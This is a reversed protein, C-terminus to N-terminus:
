YGRETSTKRINMGNISFEYVHDIIEDLFSEAMFEPRDFPSLKLNMKHKRINRTTNFFLCQSMISMNLLRIKHIDTEGTLKVIIADLRSREQSLIESIFEKSVLTPAFIEHFVMRMFWGSPGEDFISRILATIYNKLQETAPKESGDDNLVDARQILNVAHRFSKEFLNEKSRFYYNIAARNVEAMGCIDTISTAKYGKQAFAECACEVIRRATDNYEEM